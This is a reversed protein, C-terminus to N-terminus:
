LTGKLMLEHNGTREYDPLYRMYDDFIQTALKERGEPTKLNMHDVSNAAVGLLSGTIRSYPRTMMVIQQTGVIAILKWDQEALALQVRAQPVKALADRVKPTLLAETMMAVLLQILRSGNQKAIGDCPLLIPQYDSNGLKGTVSLMNVQLTYSYSGSPITLKVCFNKGAFRGGHLHLEHAQEDISVSVCGGNALKGATNGDIEVILKSASAEMCKPRFIHLTSM